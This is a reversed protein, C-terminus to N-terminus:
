TQLGDPSTKGVEDFLSAIFWLMVRTADDDLTRLIPKISLSELEQSPLARRDLACALHRICNEWPVKSRAFYAVLAIVMKRLVLNSERAAVLGVVLSLLREM